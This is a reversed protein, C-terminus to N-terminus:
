KEARLEKLAKIFDRALNTSPHRSFTIGNLYTRTNTGKWVVRPSYIADLLEGGRTFVYM